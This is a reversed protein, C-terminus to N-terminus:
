QALYRAVAFNDVFGDQTRHIWLKWTSIKGDSQLVLASVFSFNFTSYEPILCTRPSATFIATEEWFL